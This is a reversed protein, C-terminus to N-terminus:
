RRCPGRGRDLRHTDLTRVPGPSGGALPGAGHRCAMCGRRPALRSGPATRSRPDAPLGHVREWPCRRLESRGASAGDAKLKRARSRMGPGSDVDDLRRCASTGRHSIEAPFCSEGAGRLGSVRGAPGDRVAFKTAFSVAASPALDRRSGRFPRIATRARYRSASLRQSVDVYHRDRRVSLPWPPASPGPHHRAFRPPRPAPLPLCSRQSPRPENAVPALCRGRFRLRM